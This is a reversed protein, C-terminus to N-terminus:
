TWRHIFGCNSLASNTIGYLANHSTTFEGGIFRLFALTTSEGHGFPNMSRRDSEVKWQRAWQAGALAQRTEFGTGGGEWEGRGQM